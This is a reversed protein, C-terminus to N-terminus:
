LHLNHIAAHLLSSKYVLSETLKYLQRTYLFCKASAINKFKSFVHKSCVTGTKVSQYVYIYM